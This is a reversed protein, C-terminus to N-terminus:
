FVAEMNLTIGAKGKFHYDKDFDLFPSISYKLVERLIEQTYAGAVTMSDLGFSPRNISRLSYSGGIARAPTLSYDYSIGHQTTFYNEHDRYEESSTLSLDSRKSIEWQFDLSFFEGTGKDPDTFFDVRPVLRINKGKAESQFRLIYSLTPPSALKLRPQFTTKIKGLTEFFQFSAGFDRERTRTRVRRQSLDRNEKDEDYSSFRVQWRKEFNPLRLNIGFDTSTTLGTDELHTVYQTVNITSPNKKRTYKKGALTIDIKEAAQELKQSIFKSFEISREEFSHVGTSDAEADHVAKIDSQQSHAAAAFLFIAIYTCNAFGRNM